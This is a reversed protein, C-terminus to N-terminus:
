SNLWHVAEDYAEEYGDGMRQYLDRQMHKPLSTYCKYCFSRRHQKLRGCQCEDSMLEKIYFKTDSM